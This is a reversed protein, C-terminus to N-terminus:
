FQKNLVKKAIIDAAAIDKRVQRQLAARSSFHKARRMKKIIQVEIKRRYFSGKLGVCHIEFSVKKDYISRPGFHVAAAFKRGNIEAAAAYVGFGLAKPARRPNINITPFGMQGAKGLGKIVHGIILM